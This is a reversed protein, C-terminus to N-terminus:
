KLMFETEFALLWNQVLVIDDFAIRKKTTFLKSILQMFTTVNDFSLNKHYHKYYM